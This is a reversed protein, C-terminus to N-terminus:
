QMAAKRSREFIDMMVFHLTSRAVLKRRMPSNLDVFLPVFLGVACSEDKKSGGIPLRGTPLM